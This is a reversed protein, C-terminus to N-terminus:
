GNTDSLTFTTAGRFVTLPLAGRIEKRGANGRSTLFVTKDYCTM